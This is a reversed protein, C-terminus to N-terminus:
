KDMIRMFMTNAITRIDEHTLQENIEPILTKNTNIDKAMMYAANLCKKMTESAEEFSVPTKRFGGKQFKQGKTILKVNKIINGEVEIEVENGKNLLEETFMKNVEEPSSGEVNYWVNGVIIGRSFRDQYQTAEKRTGDIKVKITKM